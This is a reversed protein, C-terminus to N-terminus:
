NLAKLCAPCLKERSFHSIYDHRVTVSAFSTQCLVRHNGGRIHLGAPATSKNEYAQPTADLSNEVIKIKLVGWFLNEKPTRSHVLKIM